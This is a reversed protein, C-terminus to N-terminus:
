SEEIWPGDASLVEKAREVDGQAVLLRPSGSLTLGAYSGGGDDASLVSPIGADRLIGQAFEAEHRYRFTAIVVPDDM